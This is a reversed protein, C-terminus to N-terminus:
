YSGFYFEYYLIYKKKKISKLSRIFKTRSEDVYKPFEISYEYMWCPFQNYNINNKFDVFCFRKIVGSEKVQNFIIYKIKKSTKIFKKFEDLSDNPDEIKLIVSNYKQLVTDFRSRAKKERNERGSIINSIRKELWMGGQRRVYYYFEELKVSYITNDIPDSFGNKRCWEHYKENEKAEQESIDLSDGTYFQSYLPMNPIAKPKSM